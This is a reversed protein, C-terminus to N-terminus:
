PEYRALLEIPIGIEALLLEGSREPGGGMLLGKKVLAFTVTRTARVCHGMTQGTDASLGSPIDVSLTPKSAGNILQILSDFPERVNSQLGTGLLADIILGAEALSNELEAWASRGSIVTLPIGSTKRVIGLNIRADGEIEQPAHTLFVQVRYGRNHLHRAIVHGDGGNNGKGCLLVVLSDSPPGVMGVAAEVVAVGANEMLVAGPVGYDEIAARDLERVEAATAARYQNIPIFAM